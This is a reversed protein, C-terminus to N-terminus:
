FMKLLNSIDYMRPFCSTSASVTQYILYKRSFPSRKVKKQDNLFSVISSCVLKLIKSQDYLKEFASESM